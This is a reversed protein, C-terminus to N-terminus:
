EKLLKFAATRRSKFKVLFMLFLAMCVFYYGKFVIYYEIPKSLLSHASIMFFLLISLIFPVVVKKEVGKSIIISNALVMMSFGLFTLGSKAVLNVAGSFSSGFFYMVLYDGVLLAGIVIIFSPLIISASFILIRRQEVSKKQLLSIKPFLSSSIAIPVFQLVEFM